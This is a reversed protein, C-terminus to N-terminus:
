MDPRALRVGEGHHDDAPIFRIGARVLARELATMTAARPAYGSEIRGVTNCSVNAKGALTKQSWGLLFRAARIQLPSAM